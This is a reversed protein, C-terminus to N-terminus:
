QRIKLYVEGTERGKTHWQNLNHKTTKIKLRSFSSTLNSLTKQRVTWPQMSQYHIYFSWGKSYKEVFVQIADTIKNMWKYINPGGSFKLLCNNKREKMCHDNRKDEGSVM